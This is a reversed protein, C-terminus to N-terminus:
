SAPADGLTRACRAGGGVPSIAANRFRGSVRLRRTGVAWSGGRLVRSSSGGAEWASGNTPAGEYSDHWRDQVWEFVNGALDYLGYANPDFSKVPATREYRDRGRTGDYNADEYSVRNGSPYRVDNRGGRAAYEWEAESPLRGGAWTCFRVAQGWTLNMVPHGDGGESSVASCRGDDVCRGYQGNTTETAAMEFASVTVARRPLENDWCQEDGETCGMEFGGGPIAVWEVETPTALPAVAGPPLSAVPASSDVPDSPRARVETPETRLADEGAACGASLVLCLAASAVPKSGRRWM